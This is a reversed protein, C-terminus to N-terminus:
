HREELLANTERPIIEPVHRDLRARNHGRQIKGYRPLEPIGEQREGARRLLGNMRVSKRSPRPSGLRTM